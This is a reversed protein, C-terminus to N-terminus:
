AANRESKTIDIDPRPEPADGSAAYYDFAWRKRQAERSGEHVWSMMAKGLEGVNATNGALRVLRTMALPFEDATSRVLRTFRIPALRPPDGKGRETPTTAYGLDRMVRRSPADEKVYALVITLNLAMRLSQEHELVGLRKALTIAAPELMAERWGHARRLRARTARANSTDPMIWGKWWVRVIDETM